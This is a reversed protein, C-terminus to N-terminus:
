RVENISWDYDVYTIKVKGARALGSAMDAPMWRRITKLKESPNDGFDESFWDLISSLALTQGTLKANQPQEFFNKSNLELQDHIRDATYAQNLLRPCGKSACVIAFHIRPEKMPRLIEHEIQNLSYPKGGVHIQLDDWINYGILKATHNRISTTPYVQLIGEITVANYANIWFALTAQRSSKLTPNGSSLHNLYNLLRQRDNKNKKWGRYDVEGKATVYRALLAGFDKHNIQDFSVASGQPKQQGLYVNSGGFATPIWALTLMALIAIFRM